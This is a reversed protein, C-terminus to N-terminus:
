SSPGMGEKEVVQGWGQPPRQREWWRKHLSKGGGMGGDVWLKAAMSLHCSGGRSESDAPKVQIPRAMQSSFPLSTLTSLPPLTTPAEDSGQWASRGVEGAEADWWSRAAVLVETVGLLVWFCM